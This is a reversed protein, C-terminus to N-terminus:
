LVHIDDVEVDYRGTPLLMLSLQLSLDSRGEERTFLPVVVSWARAVSGEVVVYDILNQAGPPLPVLTRGYEVVSARMQSASVRSRPAMTHVQEYEGRALLAVLREVVANRGGVDADATSM